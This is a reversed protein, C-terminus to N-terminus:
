YSNKNTKVIVGDEPNILTFKLDSMDEKLERVDEVMAKLKDLLQECLMQARSRSSENLLYPHKVYARMLNWEENIRSQDTWALRSLLGDSSIASKINGTYLSLERVYERLLQEGELRPSSMSEAVFNRLANEDIMGMDKYYDSIKNLYNIYYENDHGKRDLFLINSTAKKYTQEPQSGAYKNKKM